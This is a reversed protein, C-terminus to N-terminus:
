SESRTMVHLHKARSPQTLERTVPLSECVPGAPDLAVTHCHSKVNLSRSKGGSGM